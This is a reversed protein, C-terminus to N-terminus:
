PIKIASRSIVQEIVEPFHLHELQLVRAAIDEPTDEEHVPCTAQFVIAGEDYHENVWHITMGTTTEGATKVARHVHMGYMGKGGFKPLLAPHINLIHHPYSQVLYDPILWLFGSLVIFNISYKEFVYLIEENEYFSSRNIVISPIDFAKARELVKANAKNSVVLSVMIDPHDKFHEMIKQANSGSGSAFIAINQM